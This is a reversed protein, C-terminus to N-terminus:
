KEVGLWYMLWRRKRGARDYVYLGVAFAALVPIGVVAGAWTCALDWLDRRM